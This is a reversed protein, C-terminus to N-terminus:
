VGIVGGMVVTRDAPLSFVEAPDTANHAMAIFLRQRWRALGRDGSVRLTARSLFWSASAVDIGAVEPHEDLVVGLLRPLDPRDYFGYHVTVHVIGDAPDGLDDVTVADDTDVHPINRAEATVIVVHEHLVHHHELTARLALPATRADPHPYIATGPVRIICDTRTQALFEELSGEASVRRTRVRQRGRLWTSMCAFLVTAVSLPLWGGDVVKALNGAFFVVEIGGFVVAMAVLRWAPWRWHVRATVVLLVTTLVFTGTVAVGYATALRASHRFAIVLVVVGVALTWNVAPMYIQGEAAESTQRIKMPPLLGLQIAQRTMSYAGSIVAQSAIVTAATALVVMPLRAWGPMSLFFLDNITAPHHLVQAAQGLYDVTLAPFVLGFWAMAIPPRGFHGMDAYLAEAGTIALVVAGMAVFALGPDDVVFGIAYTPSLGRLVGPDGAIQAAGVATLAAFWAVMVPGFAAGVKATGRPQIAFLAVLVVLALPVVLHALGTDVVELGEISSIVSIAPTIISDGYFLCAGALGLMLVLAARGTTRGLARRALAALALIGGEGANDARMAVGVYKAGVVLLISWFVMSVVGYVHGPTPRIRGHDFTFVTQLSYLPSTGIDGFVVGLAGLVLGPRAQPTHVLRAVARVPHRPGGRTAAPEATLLDAM